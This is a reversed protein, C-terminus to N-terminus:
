SVREGNGGNIINYRVLLIDVANGEQGVGGGGGHTPIM